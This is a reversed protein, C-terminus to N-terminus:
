PQVEFAGVDCMTGGPRPERRQDENAECMDAPIVDIAVSDGGLAHTRTGGGNDSLPELKLDDASIGTRDTEQNFGCTNGPSEMNYGNSVVESRPSDISCDGDILTNAWTSRGEFTSARGSVTSNVLTMEGGRTGIADDSESVTSNTLTLTGFANGVGGGANGTVTSNWITLDGEDNSVAYRCFMGSTNGSVTSHSLILTGHNAIAAGNDANGPNGECFGGTMTFGRLYATVGEQVSFVRHKDDGDVTMRGWVHLKVDKDIVIEAETVIATPVQCDFTHPEGGEAIADRIGQETCPHPVVPDWGCDTGVLPVVGLACVCLIGFSYRM